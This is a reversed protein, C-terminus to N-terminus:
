DVLPDVPIVRPKDEMVLIQEYLARTEASPDLGLDECLRTRCQLYTDIAGSRQGAAIQCRLAVQYLDERLPDMQIARRAYVLANGPDDADMLIGSATLMADVFTTRYSERLEAFWDDYVDGPLLEGRYLSSLREYDQLAAGLEGAATHERAQSLLKDFDDVDCRINDRVARCVGGVAEFYPLPAGKASDGMLVSKMTSWVVYLNNKAREPDMDPFLYEFLQDRPVDQGRRLILMAFLLRAKRKRWDKERISRGGVSVELGGFFRVHCLPLGDRALFKAFEDEGLLRVGLASWVTEALWPHTEMLAAEADEPPIMKLLHTPISEVGVALGFVGLLAPFARCSMAAQWNANESRIYDAFPRLRDVAASLSGTLRDCEALIMTARIAHHLNHLDGEDLAAESWSRAAAVDGGALLSAAVELAALRRFALADQVSLEEWAQESESLSDEVRGLARLMQGLCARGVAAASGDNCRNSIGIATRLDCVGQEADGFGFRVSGLIPLYAGTYMDLGFQEAEALAARVLSDARALRGCEVLCQALNGKMMVRRTPSDSADDVLTALMRRAKQFDGQSVAPILALSNQALLCTSKSATPSACLEVVTRLPPEASVFEGRLMRGIGICLLAEALLGDDVYAETSSTIEEALVEADEQKGMSRLVLLSQGIAGRIAEQDREHEALLRAARAKALSEEYRGTELCVRSWLVLTSAYSMLLSVPMAQLLRSLGAVHGASFADNGHAQLWDLAAASEDHRALIECARLYDGRATLAAVVRSVEKSDLSLRKEVLYGDVLDHVRFRSDGEHSTTLSVLPLVSCIVRLRSVPDQVGMVRLEEGTGSKMMAALQLLRSDSPALEGVVNDLWAELSPARQVNAALGYRSAQAAVASFLAVHGGSISQVQRVDDPPLPLGLERLLETAEDERLALDHDDVAVWSCRVDAPWTSISRSTVIVRVGARWLASAARAVGVLGEAQDTGRLDDVVICAAHGQGLVRVTDVLRAVSENDQEHEARVKSAEAPEVGLAQLVSDTIEGIHMPAGGADVWAVM